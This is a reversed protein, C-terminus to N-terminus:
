RAIDDTAEFRRANPVRTVRLGFVGVAVGCFFSSATRTFDVPLCTTSFFFNNELVVAVRTLSVELGLVVCCAADLLRLNPPSSCLFVAIAAFGLTELGALGADREELPVLFSDPM